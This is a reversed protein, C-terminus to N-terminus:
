LQEDILNIKQELLKCEEKLSEIKREMEQLMGGGKKSSISFFGINNEYTAIENILSDYARKLKERERYLKNDGKESMDSLNSKFNELRRQAVDINLKDFQEDLVTRYKKYIKDKEKFPVHGVNNWEAALSRLAALSEGTTEKKEFNQIKEIIELKLDLNEKEVQYKSSVNKNKQEFFYDCATIFRKWVEDSHKRQVQGVEKWEKQIKIFEETTENWDTSDKLAEAKECLAIKKELNEAMTSKMGKNFESKATFFKDCAARYRDFIIQNKKRPAFGISRWDEQLGFIEKTAKDWDKYSNLNSTDFNEIKECIEEKKVLNNKELERIKEFHEQHKKNIITSAEKFKAWVDDRIDRAVPGLEHWEEHLKQLQRFASVVDNESDLSEALEILKSKAELNKKFDYERLENNIKILDWFAEQQINYERWLQTTQGSPVPGIEKWDQQLQRFTNINSSVDEKTDVLEKLKEIISQKKALNEQKESELKSTYEAKKERFAAFLEKFEIELEPEPAVFEEENSNSELFLTKAAEVEEKSKRYFTQKITEVEEKIEALEKHLLVKFREILEHKTLDNHNPTEEKEEKEIVEVAEDVVTKAEENTLVEVEETSTEEVNTEVEEAIDKVSEEKATVEVQELNETEQNSLEQNANQEDNLKDKELSPDQANM